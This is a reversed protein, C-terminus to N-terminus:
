TIRNYSSSLFVNLSAGVYKHEKQLNLPGSSIIEKDRAAQMPYSSFPSLATSSLSIFDM